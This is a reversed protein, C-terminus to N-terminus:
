TTKEPLFTNMSESLRRYTDNSMLMSVVNETLVQRTAADFYQKVGINIDDKLEKSFRNIANRAEQEALEKMKSSDFRKGLEKEILESMYETRTLTRKPERWGGGITIDGAMFESIQKDVIASMASRTLEQIDGKYTDTVIEGIEQRVIQQTVNQVANKLAEKIYLNMAETDVQIKMAGDPQPVEVTTCGANYPCNEFGGDFECDPCGDEDWGGFYKCNECDRSM